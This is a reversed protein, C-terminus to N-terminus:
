QLVTPFFFVIAFDKTFDCFICYIQLSKRHPVSFTQVTTVRMVDCYEMSHGSYCKWPLLIPELGEGNLPYFWFKGGELITMQEQQENLPHSYIYPCEVASACSLRNSEPAVFILCKENQSPLPRTILMNSHHCWLWYWLTYKKCYMLRALNWGQRAFNWGQLNIIRYKTIECWKTDM